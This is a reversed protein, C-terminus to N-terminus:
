LEFYLLHFVTIANSNAYFKSCSHHKFLNDQYFDYKRIKEKIHKTLLNEMKQSFRWLIM